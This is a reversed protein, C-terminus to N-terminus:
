AYPWYRWVWGDRERPVRGGPGLTWGLSLSLRHVRPWVALDFALIILIIASWDAIDPRWGTPATVALILPKMLALHVACLVAVRNIRLAWYFAAIWVTLLLVIDSPFPYIALARGVVLAVVGAGILHLPRASAVGFDDGKLDLRRALVVASLGLIGFASAWLPSNMLASLIGRASLGEVRALSEQDAGYMGLFLAVVVFTIIPSVLGPLRFRVLFALMGLAAVGSITALAEAPVAARLEPTAMSVGFGMSLSGAIAMASAPWIQARWTGVAEAGLWAVVALSFMFIAVVSRDSDRTAWFFLALLAFWGLLIGLAVIAQRMRGELPRGAPDVRPKRVPEVPESM